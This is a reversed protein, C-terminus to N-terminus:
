IGEMNTAMVALESVALEQVKSGEYFDLFEVKVTGWASGTYGTVAPILVNQMTPIDELVQVRSRQQVTIKVTKPRAHSKPGAQINVSSLGFTDSTFDVYAGETPAQWWTKKNLDQADMIIHDDHEGSPEADANAEFEVLGVLVESVALNPFDKGKYIDMVTLKVSGGFLENGLKVNDVDIWQMANEDAIEITQSGVTRQSDDGMCCLYEIKLTKVRNYDTYTETNKGWGPWIGIKDVEGLPLDIQIWELINNSDGPVMWATKPNGDLASQANWYNTGKKSEKKFSSATAGALAVSPILLALSWGLHKALAM